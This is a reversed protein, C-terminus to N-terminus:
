GFLQSFGCTVWTSKCSAAEVKILIEDAEPSPTEIDGVQLPKCKEVYLAAKHPSM